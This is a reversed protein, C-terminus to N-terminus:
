SVRRCSRRALSPNPNGGRKMRGRSRAYDVLIRRMLQAAVAFFQARRQWRMDRAKILKIYAEQVLDTTQLTHNPRERRLSRRAIRKLEDNVLPTLKELATEDGKSWQDLLLTLQSSDATMPM